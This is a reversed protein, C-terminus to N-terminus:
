AAPKSAIAAWQDVPPPREALRPLYDALADRVLQSESIQHLDAMRKAAGWIPKDRDPVYLTKTAV